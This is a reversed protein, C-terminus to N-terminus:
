AGNGSEIGNLGTVLGLLANVNEPLCAGRWAVYQDPRSLVLAVDYLARVEATNPLDVLTLPVSFQQAAALLPDVDVNADTRLLAFGNGLRDYLSSGDALWIHPTRCGPITTPTYKDLSYAPPIAPDAAVIPSGQYCDSFNLGIPAFQPTNVERLYNGLQDRLAQGENSDELMQAPPNNIMAAHLNKRALGAVAHSVQTTIPRRELEFSSLLAPPAWGSVVGALKWALNAADSIGANMGYGGYPVWIHSSDGCLMVRGSVFREAIFRRGVWLGHSLIELEFDCGAATRLWQRIDDEDMDTVDRAGRAIQSLWLEKGDIAFISGGADPNIVMNLWAPPNVMIKLLEPARFFVSRFRAIEVDGELKVGLADRLRSQGGDCAVLYDCCFSRPGLTRDVCTLTVGDADQLLGQVEVEYQLKIKPSALVHRQLIPEFYAQNCRHAPEPTPWNSDIYGGESDYCRDRPPIPLRALEHGNLATYYAVDHPYNGPLGVNRVESVIGLRSFIEMTRASIHNCRQQPPRDKAERELMLVNVGRSALDLALTMGVPGAGAIIISADRHNAAM